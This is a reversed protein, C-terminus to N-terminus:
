HCDHYKRKECCEEITVYMSEESAVLSEDRSLCKNVLFNPVYVLKGSLVCKGDGEDCCALTNDAFNEACCKNKSPFKNDDTPDFDGFAIEYCTSEDLRPYYWMNGCSPNWLFHPDFCVEVELTQNGGIDVLSIADKRSGQLGIHVDGSVNEIDVNCIGSEITASVDGLYDSGKQTNVVRITNIGDEPGGASQVSVDGNTTDRIDIIGEGSNEGTSISIEGDSVEEISVRHDGRDTQLKVSGTSKEVTFLSKGRGVAVDIDGSTAQFLTEHLGGSGSRIYIPGETDQFDFKNNGDGLLATFSGSSTSAFINHDGTRSTLHLDAAANILTIDDDGNGFDGKISGAVSNANVNIRGDGATMSVKGDIETLNFNHNFRGGGGVKMDAIGKVKNLSYFHSGKGSKIAVKGQAKDISIEDEGDTLTADFSGTTNYAYITKDGLDVFLSAAGSTNTLSIAHRKGSGVKLNIDGFTESISISSVEVRFSTDITLDGLTNHIYMNQIKAPRFEIDIDGITDLITLNTTSHLGAGSKLNIDGNTQKIWINDDGCGSNITLPGQVPPECCDM